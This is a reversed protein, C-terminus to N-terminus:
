SLVAWAQLGRVVDRRREPVPKLHLQHLFALLGGRLAYQTRYASNGGRRVAQLRSGASARGDLLGFKRVIDAIACTIVEIATGSATYGTSPTTVSKTLLGRPLHIVSSTHTSAAPTSSECSGRRSSTRSFSSASNRGPSASDVSAYSSARSSNGARPVGVSITNRSGAPSPAGVSAATSSRMAHIVPGSAGSLM